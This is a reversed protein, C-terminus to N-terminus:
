LCPEVSLLARLFIFMSRIRRRKSSHQLTNAQRIRPILKRHRLHRVTQLRLPIPLLPPSHNSKVQNSPAICPSITIPTHTSRFFPEHQSLSNSSKITNKPHMATICSAAIVIGIQVYTGQRKSPQRQQMAHIQYVTYCPMAPCPMAYCLSPM